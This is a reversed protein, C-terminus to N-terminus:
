LVTNWFAFAVDGASWLLHQKEGSQTPELNQMGISADQMHSNVRFRVINFRVAKWAGGATVFIFERGVNKGTWFEKPPPSWMKRTQKWRIHCLDCCSQLLHTTKTNGTLFFEGSQKKRMCTLEIKMLDSESVTTTYCSTLFGALKVFLHWLNCSSNVTLTPPQFKM